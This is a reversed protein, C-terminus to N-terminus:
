GFTMVSCVVIGILAIRMTMGFIQPNIAGPRAVLSVVLTALILAVFALKAIFWPGLGAVNGGYRLWLMAIGTLVLLGLAIQSNLQLRRAIPGFRSLMDPSAGVMQRGILPMAVNTAGGVVLSGLHVILLINFATDM